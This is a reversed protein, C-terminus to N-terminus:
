DGLLDKLFDDANPVEAKAKKARSAASVVHATQRGQRLAAVIDHMDQPTLGSARQKAQWAAMKSALEPTM